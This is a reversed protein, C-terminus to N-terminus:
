WQNVSNMIFTRSFQNFISSISLGRQKLMFSLILNEITHHAELCLTLHERNTGFIHIINQLDELKIYDRSDSYANKRPNVHLKRIKNLLIKCIVLNNWDTTLMKLTCIETTPYHLNLINDLLCRFNNSTM